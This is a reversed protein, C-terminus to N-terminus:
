LLNSISFNKLFERENNKYTKVSGDTMIVMIKIKFKYDTLGFCQSQVEIVGQLLSKFYNLFGCLSNISDLTYDNTMMDFDENKMGDYYGTLDYRFIIKDVKMLKLYAKVSIKSYTSSGCNILIFANDQDYSELKKKTLKSNFKLCKVKDKEYILLNDLKVFHFDEVNDSRHRKSLKYLVAKWSGKKFKPKKKDKKPEDKTAPEPRNYHVLVMFGDKDYYDTEM